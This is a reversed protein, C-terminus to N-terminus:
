QQGGGGGERGAAAKEAAEIALDFVALVEGVTRGPADQWTIYDNHARVVNSLANHAADSRPRSPGEHESAVLITAGYGCLCAACPLFFINTYADGNADRGLAGQTWGRDLLLTRAARLDEVLQTSM